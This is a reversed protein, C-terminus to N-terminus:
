ATPIPRSAHSKIIQGVSLTPTGATLMDAAEMIGEWRVIEALYERLRQDNERSLWIREGADRGRDEPYSVFLLSLAMTQLGFLVVWNITRLEAKDGILNFPIDYNLELIQFCEDLAGLIGIRAEEPM